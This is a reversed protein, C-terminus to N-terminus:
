PEEHGREGMTGALAPVRAACGIACPMRDLILNTRTDILILARGLFRYQFDDPLRPLVALMGAPMSALPKGTPYARNIRRSVHGPNDDMIAAMTGPNTEALLVNRFEASITPTFIDGQRAGARAVRIRNALARQAILIEGPDDTVTLVPLGKELSSRLEVYNSVPESFDAATFGWAQVRFVPNDPRDHITPAQAYGVSACSVMLAIAHSDAASSRDDGLHRSVPTGGTRNRVVMRRGSGRM